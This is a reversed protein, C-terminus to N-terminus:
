GNTRVLEPIGAAACAQRQTEVDITRAGAPIAASVTYVADAKWLGGEEVVKTRVHRAFGFGRVDAYGAIVCNAFETVDQGDRAGRMTVDIQVLDAALDTATTELYEPEFPLDDRLAPANATCASVALTAAM